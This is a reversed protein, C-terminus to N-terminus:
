QTPDHVNLFHNEGYKLIKEDCTVLVAHNEFATAVLMRDAPDGHMNGPLYSSFVAIQPTLSVVQFGPDCLSQEVWDMCDMELSIRGRQTLLGIEWFTIPSLLVPNNKQLREITKRFKLSLITDGFMHWIFVHTDFIVKHQQLSKVVPMGNRM